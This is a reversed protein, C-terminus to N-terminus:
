IGQKGEQFDRYHGGQKGETGRGMGKGEVSRMGRDGVTQKKEGERERGEQRRSGKNYM